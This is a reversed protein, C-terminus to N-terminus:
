AVRRIQARREAAAAMRYAQAKNHSTFSGYQTRVTFLGQHKTYAYM